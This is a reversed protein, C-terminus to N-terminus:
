AIAAIEAAIRGSLLDSPRWVDVNLGHARLAAMCTHQAPSIRGDQRKLERFLLGRSGAIVEDVWGAPSGKSRLTHWRLAQHAKVLERVRETLDDESFSAAMMLRYEAAKM